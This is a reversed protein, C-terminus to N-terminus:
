KIYLKPRFYVVSNEYLSIGGYGTYDPSLPLVIQKMQGDTDLGGYVNAAIFYLTQSGGTILVNKSTLKLGYRENFDKVVAQILPEYGKSSGYRCVVNGFEPSDMLEHTYNKWMAEVEPLILPNGASLNCLGETNGALTENIDKMIARVGSLRDMKQGSKSLKIQM